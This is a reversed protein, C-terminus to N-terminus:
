KIISANADAASVQYVQATQASLQLMAEGSSTELLAQTNSDGALGLVVQAGNQTASWASAHEIGLLGISVVRVAPQKGVNMREVRFGSGDPARGRVLVDVANAGATAPLTFSLSQGAALPHATATLVPAGTVLDSGDGFPVDFGDRFIVVTDTDTVEYPANPDFASNVDFTNDATDDLTDADVQATVLWTLSRSAPIVVGSDNLPGTGSATCSAGADGGICTWQTAAADFASSLTETVAIDDASNPGANSIKFLYNRLQGTRVFDHGDDVTVTLAAANVSDADTASNNGPNPDTVGAAASVTATNSLTSGGILSLSCSATYTISGGAPLNVTDNLNGSGAATCTGGGAGVCTWSCTAGSPFTDAVTSSTANSPGANSATITYTASGHPSVSTVGDTKTISLDAQPTLTDTDTASNNAPNPDTSDSGANVTATNSLTGTASASITCSATYTTSGGAPLNLADNINGSGSATCTGGSAGVCTWTCTLSAPFTDAVTAGNTSSPGANSATITYTVSGGPTATTVGDTKTIALDSSGVLTDTDTASEDGPTPDTVDAPPTVTATNSLTGTASAAVTCSATYTVNGGSPLNVLDSINGSGAAMCTGGGAGVCTWTCTLAAPFTDAVTAGNAPDPGANSASITYTVSGGATATTVGDTNTISLDANLLFVEGPESLTFLGFSGVGPTTVTNAAANDTGGLNTYSTGDQRYMVLNAETITPPLDAPDLYSLTLDAATIAPADINWYRLVAKDPPSINPAQSQVSAVTANAPFTGATANFTVPTYGNATGVEYTKSGAAAFSKRLNGDVYGATRAVTSATFTNPGTVVRGNVFTATGTVSLDADLALTHTPDNDDYQFTTLTRTPNIEPGTVRSVTTRAYLAIEGGTGLNFVFPLDFTGAPTPTATPSGGNGMQVVGSTAGGNGLTIKNSNTVNGDFLNVRAAIFQNTSTFTLGVSEISTATIPATTVGSGTYTQVGQGNDLWILNSNAGNATLTGNNTITTGLVLLLVNGTNFTAGPNTTINLTANNYNVLTTSFTATHNASTGTVVLNPVVGRINFSKAAGSAANGMQLTGGTLVGNGAQNRYDIASAALQPVITGGTLNISSGTSTGMDFSGLTTSTNGITNVTVTGASQTYSIANSSAAVGFRGTSNIAGGDVIVTSGTSFGLSNGTATGINFTGQSVHLVGNVTGSGNQGAVTYNPNNLWFTTGSAITYGATNFVRSTGTFTGSLKFTGNSLTLWGGVVTDTTVGRVTFNTALLELTAAPTGKNVTVGRVDTTAGSGGFTTNNTGTFVIGAGATDANTSFDLTGDNTLNGIISLVHGTQTGNLSSQFTGGNQVLVDTGVNLSRATTQEFQLTGPVTVSYAVAATDITVTTGATITVADNLTPVNGTSWTVPNSWQGDGVSANPTPAATAQTGGLSATDGESVAYVLWSYTTSGILNTAAFSTANQAATNVFSYNVGDTSAYIAYGLEDPSDTWNLTTTTATVGTFTLPGGPATVAPPTLSFSRRSGDAASSLVTIAGATYLNNVPTASGGNFTPAPAGSKAATISGVTGVANNSSFGMQPSQSNPDAAGAASMSMAGYVFEIAGTTEFLHLQYTLDATGGANFDAQMNLWEAVFERNPAAGVVKFHVKGNGAHTRQDAGYATVLSQGAQALPDYLTNGVVSAGFRLTGNSNVSFRDQRVGQFYFDFGIPTVASAVDDQDAGILTTTGSSMDVLSATTGTAFSYNSAVTLANPASPDVIAAQQLLPDKDGKAKIRIQAADASMLPVDAQAATQWGTFCVIAAAIAFIRTLYSNKTQM